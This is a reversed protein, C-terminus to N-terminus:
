FLIVKLLKTLHDKSGDLPLYIYHLDSFIGM